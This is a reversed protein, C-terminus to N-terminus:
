NAQIGSQKVVREWVALENRIHEAFQAPTSARVDAGLGSIRERVDALGLM